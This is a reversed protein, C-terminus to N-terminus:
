MVRADFNRMCSSIEFSDSQARFLQSPHDRGTTLNAVTKYTSNASNRSAASIV